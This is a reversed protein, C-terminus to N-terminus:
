SISAKDVEDTAQWQYRTIEGLEGLYYAKSVPSDDLQSTALYYRYRCIGHSEPFCNNEGDDSLRYIKLWLPKEVAPQLQNLDTMKSQALIKVLLPDNISKVMEEANSVCSFILLWIFPLVLRM